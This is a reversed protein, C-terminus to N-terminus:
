EGIVEMNAEDSVSEFNPGEMIIECKYKGSTHLSADQLLVQQHNSRNKQFLFHMNTKHFITHAVHTSMICSTSWFNISM